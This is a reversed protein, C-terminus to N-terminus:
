YPVPIFINLIHCFEGMKNNNNELWIVSCRMNMFCISYFHISSQVSYLSLTKNIKLNVTKFVRMKLEVKQNLENKM